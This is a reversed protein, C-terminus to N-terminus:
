CRGGHSCSHGGHGAHGHHDCTAEGNRPLSGDLLAQVAKDADGEAGAYLNVGAEALANQAGPGIGGCILADAGAGKLFGALAGHGNGGSSIVQADKVMGDEIDYLKFQPTRGFHQFVEGEAYTVAVRMVGEGKVRVNELNREALRYEGGEIRLQKGDVLVEALKRRASNYIATVTTRAVGMRDACAQQNLGTRDILRITEYEDLSMVVIEKQEADQPAFTWHDPYNEICRCRRPRPMADGKQCIDFVIIAPKRVYTLLEM